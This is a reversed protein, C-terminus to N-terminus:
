DHNAECIRYAVIDSPSDDHRWFAQGASSTGKVEESSRKKGWAQQKEVVDGCRFKVDVITLTPVPCDSGDHKIWKSM